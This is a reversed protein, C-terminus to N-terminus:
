TIKLYYIQDFLHSSLFYSKLCLKMFSLTLLYGMTVSHPVLYDFVECRNIFNDSDCTHQVNLYNVRNEIPFPCTLRSFRM